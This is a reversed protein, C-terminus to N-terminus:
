VRRAHYSRDANFTSNCVLSDNSKTIFVLHLHWSKCSFSICIATVTTKYETKYNSDEM